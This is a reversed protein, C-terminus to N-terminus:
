ATKADLWKELTSIVKELDNVSIHAPAPYTVSTRMEDIDGILVDLARFYDSPLDQKRGVRRAKLLMPAIYYVDHPDPSCRLLEAVLERVLRRDDEESNNITKEECSQAEKVEAIFRYGRGYETEIMFPSKPDDGLASRLGRIAQGVAEPTVAAGQWIANLLDDQSFLKGPNEVFLCLLNWQRGSLPVPEEKDRFLKGSNIDLTFAHGASIISKM